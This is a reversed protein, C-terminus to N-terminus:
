WNPPAHKPQVVIVPQKMHM